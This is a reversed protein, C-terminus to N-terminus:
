VCRSGTVQMAEDHESEASVVAPCLEVYTPPTTPWVWSSRHDRANWANWSARGAYLWSWNMSMAKLSRTM